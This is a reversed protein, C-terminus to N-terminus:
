YETLEKEGSIFKVLYSNTTAKFNVYFDIPNKITTLAPTWGDYSYTFEATTSKIPIEIYGLEVPDIPIEGAYTKTEWLKQGDKEYYFRTLYSVLYAPTITYSQKIETPLNNWRKTTDFEYFTDELTDGDTDLNPRSKIKNLIEARLNESLSTDITPDIAASGGEAIYSYLLQNDYTIYRVFYKPTSGVYVTLNPFTENLQFLFDDEITDVYVRGTVVGGGGSVQAGSATISGM